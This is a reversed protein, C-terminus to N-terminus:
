GIALVDFNKLLSYPQAICYNCKRNLLPSNVSAVCSSRCPHNLCGVTSAFDSHIQLYILLVDGGWEWPWGPMPTLMVITKVAHGKGEVGNGRVM